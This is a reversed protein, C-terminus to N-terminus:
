GFVLEEIRFENLAQIEEKAADPSAGAEQLALKALYAFRRTLKLLTARVKSDSSSAVMQYITALNNLLGRPSGMPVEQALRIWIRSRLTAEENKM